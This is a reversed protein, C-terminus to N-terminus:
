QSSRINNMISILLTDIDLSNTSLNNSNWMVADGTCCYYNHRFLLLTLMCMKMTAIHLKLIYFKIKLDGVTQFKMFKIFLHTACMPMALPMVELSFNINSTDVQTSPIDLNLIPDVILRCSSKLSRAEAAAGPLTM